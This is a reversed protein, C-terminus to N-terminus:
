SLLGFMKRDLQKKAKTMLDNLPGQTMYPTIIQKGQETLADVLSDPM